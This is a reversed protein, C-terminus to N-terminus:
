NNVSAPKRELSENTPASPPPVSAPISPPSAGPPLSTNESGNQEALEAAIEKPSKCIPVANTRGRCMWTETYKILTGPPQPYYVRYADPDLNSKIQLPDSDKPKIELWFARYEAYCLSLFVTM